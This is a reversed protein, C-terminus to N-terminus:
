SRRIPEVHAGPAVDDDEQGVETTVPEVTPGSVSDIGKSEGARGRRWRWQLDRAVADETRPKRNWSIIGPKKAEGLKRLAVIDMTAQLLEETVEVNRRYEEVLAGDMDSEETLVLGLEALTALDVSTM